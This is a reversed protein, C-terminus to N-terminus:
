LSFYLILLLVASSIYILIKRKTPKFYIDISALVLAAIFSLIFLLRNPFIITLFNLINVIGILIKLLNM